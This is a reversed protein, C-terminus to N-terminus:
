AARAEVRRAFRDAAVVVLTLGLLLSFGVVDDALKSPMGDLNLEPFIRTIVADTVLFGLLGIAADLRQRFILIALSLIVAFSALGYALGTVSVKALGPADAALKGLENPWLKIAVAGMLALVGLAALLIAVIGYCRFAIRRLRPALTSGAAPTATRPSTIAMTIAEM